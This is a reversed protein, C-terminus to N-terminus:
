PRRVLAVRVADGPGADEFGLRRYLAEARGGRDAQLVVARGAAAAHRLLNRLLETGIGGGRAAPLLAVDVVRVAGADDATLLRGVPAEDVLVIRDEADPFAAAYARERTEHQARLLDDPLGALAAGAGTRHLERLLDADGPGAPRLVARRRPDPAPPGPM